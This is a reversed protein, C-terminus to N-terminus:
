EADWDEFADTVAADFLADVRELYPRMVVMQHLCQRCVFLALETTTGTCAVNDSGCRTCVVLVRDSRIRTM